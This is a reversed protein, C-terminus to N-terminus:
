LGRGAGGHGLPRPHPPAPCQRPPLPRRPPAPPPHRHPLRPPRRYHAPRRVTYMRTPSVLRYHSNNLYMILLLLIGFWAFYYTLLFLKRAGNKIGDEIFQSIVPDMLNTYVGPKGPQGCTVAKGWSVIGVQPAPVRKM